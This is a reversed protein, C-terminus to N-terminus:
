VIVQERVILELSATVANLVGFAVEFGLATSKTISLTGKDLPGDPAGKRKQPRDLLAPICISFGMLLSSIWNFEEISLGWSGQFQFKILGSLM